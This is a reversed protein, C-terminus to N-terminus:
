LHKWVYGYATRRKGNCVHSIHAIIGKIKTSKTRHNNILYQAADALASFSLILEGSNIDFMGVPKQTIEKLVEKSTRIKIQKLKLIKSIHGEDIKLIESVKKINNLEQYTKVVLDYDIYKKGDGGLTANYGNKFSGYYEIWYVEKEEPIDTEEILEIHFNEIGYKRM